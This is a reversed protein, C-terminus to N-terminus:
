IATSSRSAPRGRAVGGADRDASSRACRTATRARSVAGSSRRHIRDRRHRAGEGSPWWRSRRDSCGRAARGGRARARRRRTFGLRGITKHLAIPLVFQRRVVVVRFGHARSPRSSVRARGHRSVGRRPRRARQRLAGPAARSRPSARRARSLRRRRAVARRPVARRRVARWDIAHMLVRLCVAADVSATARVAPAHADAVGFPMGVGADRARAARSACCRPRRTSGSSARARARWASAGRPRHGHRRRPRTPRAAAGAGRRLLAEQSELLYRGIPGSFRLADFGEAVDRDAYHAYSYHDRDADPEAASRTM